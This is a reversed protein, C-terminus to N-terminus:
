IKEIRQGCYSCFKANRELQAGCNGCYKQGVGLMAYGCHPCFQIQEGYNSLDTECAPCLRIQKEPLIEKFTLENIGEIFEPFDAELTPTFHIKDCFEFWNVFYKKQLKELRRKSYNIRPSDKRLSKWLINKSRWDTKELSTTYYQHIFRAIATQPISRSWQVIKEEVKRRRNPVEKIQSHAKWTDLYVKNLQDLVPDTDVVIDSSIILRGQYHFKIINLFKLFQFINDRSNVLFNPVILQLDFPYGGTESYWAPILMVDGRLTVSTLAYIRAINIMEEINGEL